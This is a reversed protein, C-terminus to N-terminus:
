RAYQENRRNPSRTKRTQPKQSADEPELQRPLGGVAIKAEAQDMGLMCLINVVAADIVADAEVVSLQENCLNVSVGVLCWITMRWALEENEVKYRGAKIAQRMDDRGYRGFARIMADALVDTRKLLWRWRPDRSAVQMVTRCGFAYLQGPDKLTETVKRIRGGLRAMVSEMVAIFLEEKSQFYYYVTGLGVDARDTIESMTALDFGKEGIVDAAASLLKERNLRRRRELRIKTKPLLGNRFKVNALIYVGSGM